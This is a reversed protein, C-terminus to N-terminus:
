PAALAAEIWALAREFEDMEFGSVSYIESEIDYVDRLYILVHRLLKLDREPIEIRHDIVIDLNAPLRDALDRMYTLTEGSIKEYDNVLKAPGLTIFSMLSAALALNEFEEDTMERSILVIHAM